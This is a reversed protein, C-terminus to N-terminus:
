ILCCEEEDFREIIVKEGNIRNETWAAYAIYSLGDSYFPVWSRACIFEGQGDLFIKVANEQGLIEKFKNYVFITKSIDKERRIAIEKDQLETFDKYPLINIDSVPLTICEIFALKWKEEDQIFDFRYEDDTCHILVSIKSDNEYIEFSSSLFKDRRQATASGCLLPSLLKHMENTFDCDRLEDKSMKDCFDTWVINGLKMIM